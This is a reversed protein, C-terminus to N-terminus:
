GRVGSGVLDYGQMRDLSACLATRLAEIVVRDKAWGHARLVGSLTLGDRCVGDVLARVFISRRGKGGHLSPRLRRVEKALGTGIREHYARLRRFDSLMAEERGGGSGGASQAELSSCKVGSAACREILSAYDRGAQVQGYTFPASFVPAACGRAEAQAAARRWATVAANTMIDFADSVRLGRRGLYGANRSVFNGADTRVMERLAFAQVTGRAPGVPITDGFETPLAADTMLAAIRAAEAEQLKAVADPGVIIVQRPKEFDQMKHRM